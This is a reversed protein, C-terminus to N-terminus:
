KMNKVHKNHLQDKENIKEELDNPSDKATTEPYRQWTCTHKSHDNYLLAM